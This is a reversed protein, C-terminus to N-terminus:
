GRTSLDTTPHGSCCGTPRSATGLGALRSRILTPSPPVRCSDRDLPRDDDAMRRETEQRGANLSNMEVTQNQKASPPTRSCCCRVVKGCCQFCLRLYPLVDCKALVFYLGAATLGLGAVSFIVTELQGSGFNPMDQWVDNTPIPAPTVLRLEPLTVNEELIKTNNVVPIFIPLPSFNQGAWNLRIQIAKTSNTCLKMERIVINGGNLEEQVNCHCPLVIEYRGFELKELKQVVRSDCVINTASNPNLVSFTDNGLPQVTISHAEACFLPCNDVIQTVDNEKLLALVCKPIECPSVQRPLLFTKPKGFMESERLNVFMEGNFAILLKEKVIQCSMSKYVFSLPALSFVRFESNAEKIPVELIIKLKTPGELVCTAKQMNYYFETKEYVYEMENNRLVVKDRELIAQLDAPPM